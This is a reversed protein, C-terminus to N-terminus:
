MRGLTCISISLHEHTRKSRKGNPTINDIKNLKAIIIVIIGHNTKQLHSAHYTYMRYEQNYIVSWQLLIRSGHSLPEFFNRTSPTSFFIIGIKLKTKGNYKYYGIYIWWVNILTNEYNLHTSDFM